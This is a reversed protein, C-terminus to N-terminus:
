SHILYHYLLPESNETLFWIRCSRHSSWDEQCWLSLSSGGRVTMKVGTCICLWLLQSIHRGSLRRERYSWDPTEGACLPCMQAGVGLAELAKRGSESIQSPKDHEQKHGWQRSSCHDDREHPYPDWSSIQPRSIQSSFCYSTLHLVKLYLSSTCLYKKLFWSLSEHVMIERVGTIFWRNLFKM